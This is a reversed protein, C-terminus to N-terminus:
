VGYITACISFAWFLYAVSVGCLGAPELFRDYIRLWKSESREMARHARVRIHERRWDDVDEEPLDALRELIPDSDNM